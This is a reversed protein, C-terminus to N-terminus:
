AKSEVELLKIVEDLRLLLKKTADIGVDIRRMDVIECNGHCHGHIHYVGHNM